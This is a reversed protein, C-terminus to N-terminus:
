VPGAVRRVWDFISACGTPYEPYQEATAPLEVWPAKSATFIHVTPLPGPDDDLSGAPVVAIPGGPERPLGGGCRSCFSVGFRQAEPVKYSTRLAGGRLWEFSWAEAFLNSGFGTSRGKRCRSCHCHVLGLPRGVRFAVAGCLCSGTLTAPVTQDSM